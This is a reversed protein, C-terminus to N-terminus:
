APITVATSGSKCKFVSLSKLSVHSRLLSKIITYNCFKLKEKHSIRAKLTLTIINVVYICHNAYPIKEEAIRYNTMFGQDYWYAALEQAKSLQMCM